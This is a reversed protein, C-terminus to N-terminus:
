SNDGKEHQFFLVVDGTLKNREREDATLNEGDADARKMARLLRKMDIFPLLVVGLYAVAKGNTDLKFDSPYLDIIESSHDNM